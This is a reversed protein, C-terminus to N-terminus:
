LKSSRRQVYEGEEHQRQCLLVLIVLYARTESDMGAMNFEGTM